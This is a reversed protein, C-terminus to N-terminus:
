LDSLFQLICRVGFGTAALGFVNWERDQWSPGAIDLHAWRDHQVFESLFLGAQITPAEQIGSSNRIDAIDSKILVRYPEYLPLQWFQEGAKEGADCIRDAFEQNNCMLGGMLKGLSVVQAGTLTAIDIIYDPSLGQAFWLGDALALRGEADTNTIEITKGNMATIVDGPRNAMGGPMNETAMMLSTIQVPLKLEAAARICALVIAAGTMDAKMHEMGKETKLSLGGSDFTIGKGIL